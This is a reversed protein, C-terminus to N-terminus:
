TILSIKKFRSAYGSANYDPGCREDHNYYMGQTPSAFRDKSGVMQPPNGSGGDTTPRYRDIVTISNLILWYKLIFSIKQVLPIKRVKCKLLTQHIHRTMSPHYGPIEM